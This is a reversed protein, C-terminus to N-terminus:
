AAPAPAYAMALPSRLCAALATEPAPGAIACFAPPPALSRDAPSSVPMYQVAAHGTGRDDWQGDENLCYVKARHRAEVGSDGMSACGACPGPALAAAATLWRANLRWSAKPTHGKGESRQGSPRPAVVSPM